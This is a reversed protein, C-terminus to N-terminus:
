HIRNVKLGFRQVISKNRKNLLSCLFKATDKCKSQFLTLDAEDVARAVNDSLDLIDQVVIPSFTALKQERISGDATTRYNKLIGPPLKKEMQPRFAKRELIM